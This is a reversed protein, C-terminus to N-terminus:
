SVVEFPIWIAMFSLPKTYLSKQGMFIRVCKKIIRRNNASSRGIRSFMAMFEHIIGRLISPILQIFIGNEGSSCLRPEEM